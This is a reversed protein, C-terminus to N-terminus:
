DKIRKMKTSTSHSKRLSLSLGFFSAVVTGRKPAEVIELSCGRSSATTTLGDATRGLFFIGAGGEFRRFVAAAAVV